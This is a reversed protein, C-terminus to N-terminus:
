NQRAFHLSEVVRQCCYAGFRLPSLQIMEADHLSSEPALEDQAYRLTDVRVREQRSDFVHDVVWVAEGSHVSVLQVYLGLSPPLYARFNSVRTLLVGDVGFRRGLDVLADLSLSGSRESSWLKAQDPDNTDLTIIQFRQAGSLSTRFEDGLAELYDLPVDEGVPPLFLVRRVVDLDRVDALWSHAKIPAPLITFCSSAVLLLAFVLKRHM